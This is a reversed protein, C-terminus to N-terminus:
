MSLAPISRCSLVHHLSSFKSGFLAEKRNGSPTSRTSFSVVSMILIAVFYQKRDAYRKIRPTWVTALPPSLLMIALIEPVTILIQCKQPDNIRWDRTHIAWCTGAFPLHANTTAKCSVLASWQYASGDMKKSFRAYVEAAIQTVLAKTPAVYVLIEDDSSRLVKEM